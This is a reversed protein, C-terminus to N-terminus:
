LNWAITALRAAVNDDTDFQERRQWAIRATEQVLDDAESRGVWACALVWLAREMDPSRRPSSTRRSRLERPVPRKEADPPRAPRRLLTRRLLNAPHQRPPVIASSTPTAHLGASAQAGGFALVQQAQVRPPTASHGFAGT